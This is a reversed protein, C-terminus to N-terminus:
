FPWGKSMWPTVTPDTFVQGLAWASLGGFLATALVLFVVWYTIRRRSWDGKFLKPVVAAMYAAALGLALGLTYNLVEAVAAVQSGHTRELVVHWHGKLIGYASALASCILGGAVGVSLERALGM